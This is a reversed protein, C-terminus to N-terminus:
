VNFKKVREPHKKLEALSPLRKKFEDGNKIDNLKNFVEPDQNQMSEQFDQNKLAIALADKLV